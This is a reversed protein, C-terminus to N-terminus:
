SRPFRYGNFVSVASGEAVLASIPPRSIVDALESGYIDSPDGSFEAKTATWVRWPVHAVHYELSGGGTQNSYGWYHETIFQQVSGELPLSPEKEIQARLTCWGAGGKWGYGVMKGPGANSFTHSMPRRVYNEGYVWRATKAIALKPVIEAIFVVGRRIENAVKRRVYFRLNIEEFDSHFPIPIGGLFKARCFRFGVVSVYTKGRFADLETGTPVFAQLSAPDVEYNLMLLDRWEATLFVKETHPM